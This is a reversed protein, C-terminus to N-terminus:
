LGRLHFLVFVMCVICGVAVIAFTAAINGRRRDSESDLYRIASWVESDSFIESEKAERHEHHGLM